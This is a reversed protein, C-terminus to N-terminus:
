QRYRTMYSAAPFEPGARRPLKLAGVRKVLRDAAAAPTAEGQLVARAESTIAQSLEFYNPSM